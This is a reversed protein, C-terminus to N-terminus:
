RCDSGTDVRRLLNTSGTMSHESSTIESSPLLNNSSVSVISLLNLASNEKLFKFPSAARSASEVPGEAEYNLNLLVMRMLSRIIYKCVQLLAHHIRGGQEHLQKQKPDFAAPHQWGLMALLELLYLSGGM